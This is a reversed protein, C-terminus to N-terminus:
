AQPKPPLLPPLVLLVVAVFLTVIGLIVLSGSLFDRPRGTLLPDVVFTGLAILVIGIASALLGRLFVPRDEPTLADLARGSTKFNGTAM